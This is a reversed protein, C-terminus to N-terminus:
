EVQEQGRGMGLRRLRPCAFHNVNRDFTRLTRDNEIERLHSADVTAAEGKQEFRHLSDGGKSSTEEQDPEVLLDAADEGGGPEVLDKM